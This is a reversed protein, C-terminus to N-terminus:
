SPEEPYPPETSWLEKFPPNKGWHWQDSTPDLDCIVGQREVFERAPTDMWRMLTGDDIGADVLTIGYLRKYWYDVNARYRDLSTM